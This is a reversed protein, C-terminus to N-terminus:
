WSQLDCAFQEWDLKRIAAIVQRDDPPGFARQFWVAVLESGDAEPDDVPVTSEFTGISCVPPLFEVPMGEPHSPSSVVSVLLEPALVAIKWPEFAFLNEAQRIAGEIPWARVEDSTPVGALVGAYTAYQHLATLKIERGGDLVATWASTSSIAPYGGAPCTTRPLDAWEFPLPLPDCGPLDFNLVQTSM